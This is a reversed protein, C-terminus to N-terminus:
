VAWCGERVGNFYFRTRGGEFGGNLNINVTFMSQEDDSRAFSADVHGMFRDGPYYKAVRWCENLGVAEWEFREMSLTAPVLPRLREWMAGALGADTVILRLNGRYHKPYNGM